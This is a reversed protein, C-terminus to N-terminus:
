ASAKGERLSGLAFFSAESWVGYLYDGGVKREVGLEVLQYYVPRAILAELGARVMLYPRPEGSVSDHDVRIPHRDDAVVRDDLNTRFELSQRRGRGSVTLAVAVFPADEVEVRCREVPTVLYYAGDGERRLVTAFLRVLPKRAIPSGHYYWTGDRAIRMDFDSRGEGGGPVSGPPPPAAALPHSPGPPPKDM